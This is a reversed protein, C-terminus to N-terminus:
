SYSIMSTTTTTTLLTMTQPFTPLSPHINITVRTTSTREMNNNNTQTPTTPTLLSLTQDNSVSCPHKNHTQTTQPHIDCLTTAKNITTPHKPYKQKIIKKTTSKQHFSFSSPTRRIQTSDPTPTTSAFKHYDYFKTSRQLPGTPSISVVSGILFICNQVELQCNQLVPSCSNVATM